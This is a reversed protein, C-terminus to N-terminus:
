GPVTLVRWLDKQQKETSDDNQRKHLCLEKEAELIQPCMEKNTNRGSHTLNM